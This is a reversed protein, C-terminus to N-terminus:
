LKTVVVNDVTKVTADLVFTQELNKNASTIKFNYSSIDDSKLLKFKKNFTKDSFEKAYLVDGEKTTITVTFKDSTPNDLNVDFMLANDASTGAYKVSAQSSASLIEIHRTAKAFSPAAVLVAASVLVAALVKKGTTAIQTTKM